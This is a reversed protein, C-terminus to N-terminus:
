ISLRITCINHLNYYISTGLKRIVDLVLTKYSNQMEQLILDQM